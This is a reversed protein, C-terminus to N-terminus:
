VADQYADFDADYNNGSAREDEHAECDQLLEIAEGVIREVYYLATEDAPDGGAKTIFQELSYLIDHLDPNVSALYAIAAKSGALRPMANLAKLAQASEVHNIM